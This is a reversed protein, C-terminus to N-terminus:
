DPSRNFHVHKGCPFRKYKSNEIIAHHVDAIDIIPLHPGVPFTM